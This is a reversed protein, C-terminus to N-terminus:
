GEALKEEMEVVFGRAAENSPDLEISRGYMAISEELRGGARLADGFSDWVNSSEPYDITNREFM